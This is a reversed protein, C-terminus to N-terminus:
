VLIDPRHNLIFSVHSLIIDADAALQQLNKLPSTVSILRILAPSSDEPLSTLLEAADTLLLLGHYPRSLSFTLFPNFM